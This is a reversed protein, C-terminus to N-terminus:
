NGWGTWGAELHESATGGDEYILTLEGGREGLAAAAQVDPLVISTEGTDAYSRLYLTFATIAGAQVTFRAAYGEDGVQVGVGELVYGYDVQWVGPETERIGRLAVEAAGCWDASGITKEVLPYTGEVLELLTPSAGAVALPYRAADAGGMECRVLGNDAVTLTDPWENVVLRDSRRYSNNPQAHFGLAELLASREEDMASIPSSASYVAHRGQTGQVPAASASLMTYPSLSPWDGEFAFLAGNASYSMALDQIHGQLLETTDCAYFLGDSENHYYLKAGLAGETLLLRRASVDPLPSVADGMAALASLPVAGQFDLYFGTQDSLARRWEAERVAQPPQAGDMAELLISFVRTFVEDVRQQDYQVGYRGVGAITVAMRAPRVELRDEADATGPQSPGNGGGLLQSVSGLWGGEPLDAYRQVRVALYVASLTLAVILLVKVTEKWRGRKKRGM